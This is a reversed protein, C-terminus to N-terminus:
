MTSFGRDMRFAQRHPARKPPRSPSHGTITWPPKLVLLVSYFSSIVTNKSLGYLESHAAFISGSGNFYSYITILDIVAVLFWIRVSAAM